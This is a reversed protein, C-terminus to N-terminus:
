EGFIEIWVSEGATKIIALETMVFRGNDIPPSEYKNPEIEVFRREILSQIAEGESKFEIRRWQLNAPREGLVTPYKGM